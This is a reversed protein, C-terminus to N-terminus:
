IEQSRKLFDNMIAIDTSEPIVEYQKEIPIYSIEFSDLDLNILLCTQWFDSDSYDFIFNGQGYVIKSNKYNEECGICHSHQCVVLDAGKEVMKRCVKQLYPSPYRYHEKGGHLLIITYNVQQSLDRIHDLSELPDFPNAGPSTETAITFEHEACSYFGIKQGNINIIEPKHAEKLNDGVGIVQIEHKKFQDLTSYVGESGHDLIHNNSLSVLTPKLKALGQITDTPAKLNPGCKSIPTNGDYLPTELNFVRYDAEIWKEYLAEGLLTEIDGKKFLSINDGVPVTDGAILLNM